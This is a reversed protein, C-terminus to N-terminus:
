QPEQSIPTHFIDQNKNRSNWCAQGTCLSQCCPCPITAKSSLHNKPHHYHYHHGWHGGFLNHCVIDSQTQRLPWRLTIQPHKGDCGRRIEHQCIHWCKLFYQPQHDKRTNSLISTNNELNLPNTPICDIRTIEWWPETNQTWTQNKPEM